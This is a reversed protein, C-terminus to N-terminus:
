GDVRDWAEVDSWTVLIHFFKSISSGNSEPSKSALFVWRSWNTANSNLYIQVHGCVDFRGDAGETGACALGLEASFNTSTPVMLRHFKRFFTKHSDTIRMRIDHINVRGEVGLVPKPLGISNLIKLVIIHKKDELFSHYIFYWIDYIM